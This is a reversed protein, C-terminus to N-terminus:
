DEQPIKIGVITGDQTGAFIMDGSVAPSSKCLQCGRAGDWLDIRHQPKGRELDIMYLVGFHDLVYVYAGSIVPGGIVRSDIGEHQDLYEKWLEEPEAYRDTERKKEAQREDPNLAYVAGSRDTAIVIDETAAIDGRVPREAEFVWRVQNGRYKIIENADNGFYVEDGVNVVASRLPKTEADDDNAARYYPMQRGYLTPTGHKLGTNIRIGYLTGGNEGIYFVNDHATGSEEFDGWAKSKLAPQIWKPKGVNESDPDIDFAYIHGTSHPAILLNQYLTPKVDYSGRLNDPDYQWIRSGDETNLAFMGDNQTGVFVTSGDESVVAGATVDSGMDRSWRVVGDRAYFAYFNNDKSGVYVIGEHVTIDPVISRVPGTGPSDTQFEWVVTLDTIPTPTPTFTPTPTATPFPTATPLPTPTPEPTNTPTPESTATPIPTSTPEPTPTPEPAPTPSPEPTATPIPTPTPAPTPTETPLPTPTDTPIPTPTDTPLPTYTPEPTPEPTDTPVPTHTFAQTPTPAPTNTPRPTPTLTPEPTPTETATATFTPSATFTSTVTFTPTHKPVRAEVEAAATPTPQEGEDTTESPEPESTCAAVAAFIGSFVVALIFIAARRYLPILKSFVMM